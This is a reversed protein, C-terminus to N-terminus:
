RNISVKEGNNNKSITITQQSPLVQSVTGDPLIVQSLIQQPGSGIGQSAGTIGNSTTITGLPGSLQTVGNNTSITGLPGSLMTQGGTGQGSLQTVGNNSNIITQGGTGQSNAPVQMTMTNGNDFIMTMTTVGNTTTMIMQPNSQIGQLPNKGFGTTQQGIIASFNLCLFDSM